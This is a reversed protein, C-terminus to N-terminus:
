AWPSLLHFVQFFKFWGNTPLLKQGLLPSPKQNRSIVLYESSPKASHMGHLQFMKISPLGHHWLTEALFALIWTLFPNYYAEFVTTRWFLCIKSHRARLTNQRKESSSVWVRKDTDAFTAAAKEHAAARIKLSRVPTVPEDLHWVILYPEFFTLVFWDCFDWRSTGLEANSRCFGIFEWSTTSITSLSNNRLVRLCIPDFQCSHM